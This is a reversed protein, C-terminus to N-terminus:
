HEQDGEYDSFDELDLYDQTTGERGQTVQPEEELLDRIETCIGVLEKVSEALTIWVNDNTISKEELIQTGTRTFKPKEQGKINRKSM